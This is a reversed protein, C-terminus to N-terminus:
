SKILALDGGCNPCKQLSQKVPFTAGCFPCKREVKHAQLGPFVFVEQEGVRDRQCTGREILTELGAQAVSATVEFSSMIQALTVEGQNAAALDTIRTALAAPQAAAWQRYAYASWGAGIAGVGLLIIALPWRAPVAIAACAFLLGLALTLISVIFISLYSIRKM